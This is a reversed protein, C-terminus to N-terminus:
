EWISDAIKSIEPDNTIIAKTNFYHHTAVVMRDHLEPVELTHFIRWAELNLNVLELTEENKLIQFILDIKEIPINKGFIDKGKYITYLTEGFVISPLYFKVKQKEAKKFLIDANSPLKDALYALFAVTDVIYSEM